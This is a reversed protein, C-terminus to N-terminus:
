KQNEFVQMYFFQGVQVTDTPTLPIVQKLEEPSFRISMPPGFSADQKDIEVIALKGNPKLLRKVERCFGRTQDSSFGHMVNSLYVLDISSEEITTTTTIDGQLPEITTGITEKRLTEIGDGDSDLAYVKGDGDLSRAFQKSMYGNGCGADLITQGRRLDLAELIIHKNVRSESSRGTHEHHVHARDIM